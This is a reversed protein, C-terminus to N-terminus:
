VRVDEGRICISGADVDYIRDHTEIYKEPVTRVWSPIKRWSSNAALFIYCM